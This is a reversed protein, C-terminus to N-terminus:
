RRSSPGTCSSSPRSRARARRLAGAQRPHAPVDHPLDGHRPLGAGAGPAAASRTGAGREKAFAILRDRQAKLLIQMDVVYLIGRENQLASSPSRGATTSSAWCIDGAAGARRRLVGRQVGGRRDDAAATAGRHGPQAHRRAPVLHRERAAYRSRHPLADHVLRRAPRAHDVGEARDRPLPRRGAGGPDAAVGPGLRRQARLVRLM